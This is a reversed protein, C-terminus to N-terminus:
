AERCLRIVPIPRSTMAEMEAFHQYRRKHESWIREREEGSTERAIVGVTEDAVEVTTHPNARLNWYWDPNRASGACTAFVAFDDEVALYALPNVRHLGSRAGTHHLLLVAFEYREVEGGRQYFERIVRANEIGQTPKLEDWTLRQAMSTTRRVLAM